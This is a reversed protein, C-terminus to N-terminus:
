STTFKNKIWLQVACSPAQPYAQNERLRPTTISKPSRHHKLLYFTFCPNIRETTWHNLSQVLAPLPNSGWWPVLIGCTTATCGFFFFFFAFFTFLSIQAWKRKFHCPATPWKSSDSPQLGLIATQRADCQCTSVGTTEKHLSPTQNQSATHEHTSLAVTCNQIAYPVYFVSRETSSM